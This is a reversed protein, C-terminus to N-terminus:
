VALLFSSELITISDLFCRAPIGPSRRLDLHIIERLTSRGAPAPGATGDPSRDTAPRAAADRTPRAGRGRTGTPRPWSSAVLPGGGCAPPRAYYSTCERAPTSTGFKVSAQVQVYASPARSLRPTCTDLHPRARSRTCRCRGHGSQRPSPRQQGAEDASARTRSM